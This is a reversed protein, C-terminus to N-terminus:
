ESHAIAFHGIASHHERADLGCSASIPLFAFKRTNEIPAHHDAGGHSGRTATTQADARSSCGSFGVNMKLEAHSACLSSTRCVLTSASAEFSSCHDIFIDRHAEAGQDGNRGDGRGPPGSRWSLVLMAEGAVPCVPECLPWTACPCCPRACHARKPGDCACSCVAGASAGLLQNIFNAGNPPRSRSQSPPRTMAAGKTQYRPQSSNVRRILRSVGTPRRLPRDM